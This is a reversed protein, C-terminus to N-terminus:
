ETLEFRIETQVGVREVAEGNVVRPNYRWRSIAALAAENFVNAPEAAVVVADKV